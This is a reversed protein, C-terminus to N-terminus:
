NTSGRMYRGILNAPNAGPKPSFKQPRGVHVDAPLPQRRQRYPVPPRGFVAPFAGFTGWSVVVTWDPRVEHVKRSAMAIWLTSGRDSFSYAAAACEALTSSSATRMLVHVRSNARDRHLDKPRTSRSAHVTNMYSPRTENPPNCPKGWTMIFQTAISNVVRTNVYGHERFVHRGSAM